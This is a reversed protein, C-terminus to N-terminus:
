RTILKLGMDLDDIIDEVDELGVSLRILSESIGAAELAEPTYTSHTMSAPHEILTEADGLSVALTCLKLANIFRESEDKTANLEFAIIGGFGNKMQKLALEHQPHSKLGPYYVRKVMPHNELYKAIELASECHKKVRIDLTKLGRNILFAEFPGIVAGTMDKLGFMSCETIFDVKGAAMGAIVDGHGNLYKTASHIVVDAGMDLPRQLYPTCFTNDVIVKIDPNHKHAIESIATIDVLKLNPNTPTEFYVVKTNERLNAKVADIDQFDVLTVEVGFRTLGHTFYSFTCGYLADDALLHDGAKLATWVVTTIAGMGSSMVMGAEGNELVAIKEGLQNANPNGLRTYIYGSEDGRFRRAGQETNDFVFTSTQFIPTALPNIGPIDVHATHIQKTSFGKYMDSSM